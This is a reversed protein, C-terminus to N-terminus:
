KKRQPLADTISGDVIEAAFAFTEALTPHAHVTRSIDEATAKKEIALAAEHILEGAHAGCIGAGIIVGGKKEFLVKTVGTASDTSLARGSAGWPFKGKSYPIKSNKAEKETLGVWAVEPDTYAVSPIAKPQFKVNQGAINEAAVKAEHSAKHALMPEGVVDGVAYFNPVSTQMNETTSIFGQETFMLDLNEFGMGTVNPRRGVAVLVADFQETKSDKIGEFTALIGADTAKIEIVKTRTLIQYKKKLKRVLPQILDKDAPPIIHDLMEVIIIKSGLASYVQAMEMGIVGGGIILLKDPINNLSLADSSDWIRPDVPLGPLIFPSSGTAIIADKFEIEITNDTTEVLLTSRDKFFGKGILRTIKRAKALKDLGETLQLIVSEKKTRLVSVDIEPKKFNIGYEAAKVDTEILSTGHLLTKSPICGENLCVGGLRERMDVLCVSLGLDAARFAATYGGPGGGLIAVDYTQTERM